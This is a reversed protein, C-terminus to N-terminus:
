DGRIIRHALGEAIATKGVGPEGILLPNNKTRRTLIQLIRRIEDDRGIVPDLRGSRAMENLNIAYRGLSNFTDDASQSEVSSGKRLGAIAAKIEKMSIGHDKLIRSTIDETDLIGMLLHEATVFKDKMASAHGEAKRFAESANSSIYTDAGSVKPYTDILKDIQKELSIKNVGMKGFLFDTISEAESIIGKLVHACEVAQQGKAKAIDFSKQVSEQAKLTFNSFNM